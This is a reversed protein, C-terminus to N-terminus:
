PRHPAYEYGSLARRDNWNLYSPWPDIQTGLPWIINATYLGSALANDMNWVQGDVWHGYRKVEDPEALAKDIFVDYDVHCFGRWRSCNAPFPKTHNGFGLVHPNELVASGHCGTGGSYTGDKIAASVAAIGARNITVNLGIAEWMGAVAECAELEGPVGRAFPNVEIDFGNAYGAEKLLEKSRDPDYTWEQYGAPLLHQRAGWGWMVLPTAEGHVFAEVIAPRNVAIYLAERVKRATEWEASGVTPDCSVWPADCKYPLPRDYLQGYLPLILTGGDKVKMFKTGPVKGVTEMSDLGMNFSDIKGVQFNAVLTAQEPIDRFYLEAFNPTKRYHDMVASMKWFGPGQGSLEWPGTLALESSAVEAGLAEVQDKSYIYGHAKAHVQAFDFNFKGMDVIVTYEDPATVSGNENQYLRRFNKRDVNRSNEAMAAEFTFIVDASTMEGWGRHFQVGERLNLTWVVGDSSMSWSKALKPTISASALQQFLAEGVAVNTLLQSNGAAFDAHSSFRTLGMNLGINLTGYPGTISAPVEVEIEKIVEKTVVITQGPVFVEKVVEKTVVVTEGPVIVEKIVEKTVTVTEGPVMVQKIVEKTVVVTEGPVMVEKIVENTVTITEGPVKVSEAACAAAVLLMMAAVAVVVIWRIGLAKGM